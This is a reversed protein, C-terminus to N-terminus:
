TVYRSSTCRIIIIIIVIIFLRLTTLVYFRLVCYPRFRSILM